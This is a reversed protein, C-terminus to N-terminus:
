RREGAEVPGYIMYIQGAHGQRANPAGIVIDSINDGDVEGIGAAVAGLEMHPTDGLVTAFADDLGMEGLGPGCGWAGGDCDNDRGDGCIEEAGPHVAPDDDDCDDCAFAGDGDLDDGEDTLDDCDNDLGDCLEDAGPYVGDDYDDCDNGFSVFGEPAECARTLQAPDGYGDEDADLYYTIRDLGPNTDDCDGVWLMGDGDADFVREADADTILECSLLSLLVLGM